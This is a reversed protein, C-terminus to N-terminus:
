TSHGDGAWGAVNTVDWRILFPRGASKRACSSAAITASLSHTTLRPCAPCRGRESAPLPAKPPAGRQRLRWGRRFSCLPWYLPVPSFYAAGFVHRLEPEGFRPPRSVGLGGSNTDRSTDRAHDTVYRSAVRRAAFRIILLGDAKM